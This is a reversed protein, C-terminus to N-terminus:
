NQVIPIKFVFCTTKDQISEVSIKGNHNKIISKAISLGLGFGECEKSRSSDFRYFRDFIKDLENSPIGPGSNTIKFVINHNEKSLSISIFGNEPTYKIANDVLILMVQSLQEQNGICEIDSPIIYDLKINKEFALAETSLVIRELQNSICFKIKSLPQKINEAQTLYLLDNTLKTMRLIETKIYFLWKEQSDITESKNKLVLDLNTSIVALPTKLEHSADSVFQKQRNFAEKIPQISKNTLYLSILFIIIITLTAVIIFNLLMNNLMVHRATTDLFVIRYGTDHSNILYNWYVDDYVFYGTNNESTKVANIATNYLSDELTFFSIKDLLNWNLDTIVAFSITREPLPSFNTFDRKEGSHTPLDPKELLDDPKIENQPKENINSIRHLEKNIEINTTNYTILFIATLISLMLVLIISINLFLLKNRLKEFM